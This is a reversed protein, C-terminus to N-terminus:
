TSTAYQSSMPCGPVRATRRDHFAARYRSPTLAGPTSGTLRRCDRVLHSEDAYGCDAAARALSPARSAQRLFRQFRLVTQLTKPGLGVHHDFRRRLQRVSLGVTDATVRVSAGARCLLEVATLVQRDPPGGDDSLTGLVFDALVTRAATASTTDALRDGLGALDVVPPLLHAWGPRLRIGMNVARTLVLHRVPGAVPSVVRVSRGDWTLDVCGDPLVRLERSWGAHGEWTCAVVEALGAPPAFERYLSM